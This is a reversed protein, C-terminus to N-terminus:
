KSLSGPENDIQRVLSGNRWDLTVKGGFEYLNTVIIKQLCHDQTFSPKQLSPNLSVTHEWHHLRAMLSLSGLGDM